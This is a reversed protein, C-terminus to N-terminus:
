INKSYYEIVLLENIQLLIENRDIFNEITGSLNQRDLNLHGPLSNLNTIKLNQEVVKYSSNKKLITIKDNLKCQYSPITIKKNNVLIHGHTVIQRAFPLTKAFGFRFVITDLRMELLKLLNQETSGPLKRALCVYSFLNKNSIGYNLQLKQKEKLRTSYESFKKEKNTLGHEGPLYKRISQKQTFNFLEGLRRTKKLKPGIYRTM